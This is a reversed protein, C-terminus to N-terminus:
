SAITEINITLTKRMLASGTGTMPSVAHLSNFTKVFIVCQNPTFPFSKLEDTEDFELYKNVHNFTKKVDKPKLVTTGGGFAPNWEGEKMCSVVLTIIKNASDTHPRIHGGDAPLMSFEFRTKIPIIKAVGSRYVEWASNWRLRKAAAPNNIIEIKNSIGLDIQNKILHKLIQHVFEPSKVDDYLQKWIPTGQIFAHYQDPNNVESLSYKKGLKPMYAFLEQSPYSEVAAQYVDPSLVNKQYGIPYPDYDFATDEFRFLM